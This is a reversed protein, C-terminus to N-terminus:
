ISIWCNLRWSMVLWNLGHQAAEVSDCVRAIDDQFLLPSLEEEGYSIEYSSNRFVTAVGDAISAASIIAGEGTGQGINEGTEAEETIGVGTKVKIVTDKNM